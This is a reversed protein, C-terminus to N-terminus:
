KPTAYAAKTTKLLCLFEESQEIEGEWHYTSTIPGLLQGCAILQEELLHTIIHQGTDKNPVSVQIQLFM